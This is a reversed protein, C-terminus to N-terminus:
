VLEKENLAGSFGEGALATNFEIIKKQCGDLKVADYYMM